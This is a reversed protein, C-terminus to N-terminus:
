YKEYTMHAELNIALALLRKKFESIDEGSNHRDQINILGSIYDVIQIFSSYKSDSYIPEGLNNLNSLTNKNQHPTVRMKDMLNNHGSLSDVRKQFSRDFGADFVPIILTDKRIDSTLFEMYLWCTAYHFTSNNNFAPNDKMGIRYIKVKYIMLLETLQELVSIKVDNGHEPLLNNFHLEPFGFYLINETPYYYHKFISHFDSRIDDYVESNILIATLSYFDVTNIKIKSEDIFLFATM